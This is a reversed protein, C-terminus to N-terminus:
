FYRVLNLLLSVDQNALESTAEVGLDEFQTVWTEDKYSNYRGEVQFGMNDDLMKEVGIGGSWVTFYSDKPFIGSDFEGLACLAPKFCGNFYAEFRTKVRRIGALGYISADWSRLAGTSGGLKLTLGYSIDKEFTWDESWSEGLQNHGESTGVEEINGSIRGGHHTLDIEGSLYFGSEHLPLRYGILRGFGFATEAANSEAANVKGRQTSINRSSTNDVTKEYSADLREVATALGVYFRGDADAVGLLAVVVFCCCSGILIKQISHIPNGLIQRNLGKIM